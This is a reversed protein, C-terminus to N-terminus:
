VAEAVTLVADAIFPDSELERELERLRVAVGSEAPDGVLDVSAVLFLKRPGVYELRVFRVSAVAPMREIRAIAAARLEPSGPEGTLFRRSRDILVVAITGLLLGVLISGFADWVASGTLQHLGM